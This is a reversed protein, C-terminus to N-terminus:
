FGFRRNWEAMNYLGAVFNGFNKTATDNWKSSQGKAHALAQSLADVQDDHPANPFAFLEAEFDDLWSAGRRLFLKGELKALQVAMRTVKDGIPRIAVVAPAENKLDGVLTFGFGSNEIM